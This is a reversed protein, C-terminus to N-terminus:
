LKSGRIDYLYRCEYYQGKFGYTIAFNGQGLYSTKLAEPKLGLSPFIEPGIHITRSIMSDIVAMANIEAKIARLDPDKTESTLKELDVHRSTTKVQVQDLVLIANLKSQKKFENRYSNLLIAYRYADKPASEVTGDFTLFVNDRNTQMDLASKPSFRKFTKEIFSIFDSMAQPDPISTLAGTFKIFLYVLPEQKDQTKSIVDMAASYDYPDTIFDQSVLSKKGDRDALFAFTHGNSAFAKTKDLDALSKLNAFLLNDLEDGKADDIKLTNWGYPSESKGYDDIRIERGAFDSVQYSEQGYKQQFLGMAKNANTSIADAVDPEPKCVWDPHDELTKKVNEDTYPLSATKLAEILAPYSDLNGGRSVFDLKQQQDTVTAELEAIKTASAQDSAQKADSLAALDDQAKILVDQRNEGEQTLKLLFVKDDGLMQNLTTNDQQAKSLQATLDDIKAQLAQNDAVLAAKQEKLQANAAETLQNKGQENQLANEKFRLSDFSIKLKGNEDTLTTNLKKLDDKEKSLSTVIAELQNSKDQISAEELTLSAAQNKLAVNQESLAKVQESLTANSLKEQDLASQLKSKELEAQALALAQDAQDKKLQELEASSQPQDAKTEDPVESVTEEVIPSVPEAPKPEENVAPVEAPKPEEIPTPETPKTEETVPLVEPQPEKVAPTEEPLPEAPKVEEAPKAEEAPKETVIPTIEPQPEDIPKENVPAVEPEPTVAVPKAEEVYDPLKWDNTLAIPETVIDNASNDNTWTALLPNEEKTETVSPHEEEQPRLASTLPDNIALVLLGNDEKPEESVPAAPEAPVEPATAEVPRVESPAPAEEKPEAIVPAAEPQVDPKVDSPVAAEPIPSEPAPTATEAPKTEEVPAAEAPKPEESPKVDAPKAEEIPAELTIPAAVPTEEQKEPAPASPEAPITEAVPQVDAPKETVMPAAELAPEAQAPEVPAAETAVPAAEAPKTDANPATTATPTVPANLDFNLYDTGTVPATVTTFPSVSQTNNVVPHPRGVSYLVRNENLLHDQNEANPDMPVPNAKDTVDYICFSGYTKGKRVEFFLKGIKFSPKGERLAKVQLSTIVLNSQAYSGGLYLPQKLDVDWGLGHSDDQFDDRRLPHSAYDYALPQDGFLEKWLQLAQEKNM